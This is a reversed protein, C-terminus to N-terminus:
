VQRTGKLAEENSDQMLRAAWPKLVPDKTDGIRLTPQAGIRAADANSLFPHAPDDGVPGHGHGAPPQQWDAVNTQWGFDASAFKPIEQAAPQPEGSAYGTPLICGVSLLAMGALRQPLRTMQSRM